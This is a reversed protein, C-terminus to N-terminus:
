DLRLHDLVGDDDRHAGLATKHHFAACRTVAFCPLLLSDCAVLLEDSAQQIDGVIAFAVRDHRRFLHHSMVAIVGVQHHRRVLAGRSERIDGIAQGVFVTEPQAISKRGTATGTVVMLLHPNGGAAGPFAHFTVEPFLILVNLGLREGHHANAIHAAIHKAVAHQQRVLNM